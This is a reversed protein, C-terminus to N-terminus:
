RVRVRVRVRIRAGGAHRTRLDIHSTIDEREADRLTIKVVWEMSSHSATHELSPMM